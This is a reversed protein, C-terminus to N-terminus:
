HNQVVLKLCDTGQFDAQCELNEHPICVFDIGFQSVEPLNSGYATLNHLEFRLNHKEM